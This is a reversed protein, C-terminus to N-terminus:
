EEGMMRKVTNAAEDLRPNGYSKLRNFQMELDEKDKYYASSYMEWSLSRGTSKEWMRVEKTFTDRIIQKEPGEPTIKMFARVNDNFAKVKDKDGPYFDANRIFDKFLVKGTERASEELKKSRKLEEFIVSQEKTGIGLLQGYAHVISDNEHVPRKNSTVIMHLNRAANYKMADTGMSSIYAVAKLADEVKVNADYDGELIGAWDKFMQGVRTAANWGPGLIVQQFEKERLAHMFESFPLVGNSVPSFSATLDLDVDENFLYSLARNVGWGMIIGDELSRLIAPDVLNGFEGRLNLGEGFYGEDFVFKQIGVGAAGFLVFHSAMLRAKEAPTWYKSTTLNLIAKHPAAFFQFPLSLANRQYQFTGPRTMSFAIERADAHAQALAQPSNIDISPNTKQLRKRAILFSGLLNFREGVDFGIARGAKPVAAVAGTISEAVEMATSQTLKQGKAAYLGDILTNSDISQLIGSSKFNDAFRKFEKDPLRMIKAGTALIFSDPLTKGVKSNNKYFLLMQMVSMEKSFKQMNSPKLLSPDAVAYTILQFPQLLIQRAPRLSIFLATSLRRLYDPPYNEGLGRLLKGIWPAMKDAFEGAGYWADRWLASDYRQMVMMGELWNFVAQADKVKESLSVSMNAPKTIDDMTTPFRGKTLDGYKRVFDTKAAMMFEDFAVKRSTGTILRMMAEYPDQLEGGALVQKGRKMSHVQMQRTVDFEEFVSKETLRDRKFTYLGTPDAKSLEDIKGQVEKITNAAYHSTKYKALTVDDVDKALVKTGNVMIEKPTRTIFFPNEYVRPVYGKIYPIAGSTIEGKTAGKGIRAYEVIEDGNRYHSGLRLLTDNGKYLDDIEKKTIPQVMGTDLNYVSRVKEVENATVPKAITRVGASNAYFSFGDLRFERSKMADKAVWVWDSLRRFTYYAETAEKAQKNTLGSALAKKMVEEYTFVTGVEGNLKFDEGDKLVKDVFRRVFRDQAGIKNRAYQVFPEEIAQVLDASRFSVQAAYHPMLHHAFLYSGTKGKASKALRTLGDSITKIERGFLDFRIKLADSGFLLIDNPTLSKNLTYKLYYEGDPLPKRPIAKGGRKKETGWVGPTPIPPKSPTALVLTGDDGVKMVQLVGGPLEEGLEKATKLAEDYSNFASDVTKGFVSDVKVGQGTVEGVDEISKISSKGLHLAASKTNGITTHIVDLLEDKFEDKYLLINNLGSELRELATEDLIRLEDSIDQAADAKLAHTYIDDPAALNDALIRAKDTGIAQAVEGTEDVIAKTSMKIAVSPSHTATTGLVSKPDVQLTAGSKTAGGVAKAISKVGWAGGLFGFADVLWREWSPQDGEISSHLASYRNFDTGPFAKIAELVAKKAADRQSGPPIKALSDRIEKEATGQFIGKWLMTLYGYDKGDIASQIATLQPGRYLAQIFPLVEITLGAVAKTTSDDFSAGMQNLQQQMAEAAQNKKNFSELFVNYDEVENTPNAAAIKKMYKDRLNVPVDKNQQYYELAAIKQQKTVETDPANLISAMANRRVSYEDANVMSIISQYEQSKGTFEAESIMRRYSNVADQSGLLAAYAYQERDMNGIPPIPNSSPTNLDIGETTFSSPDFLTPQM